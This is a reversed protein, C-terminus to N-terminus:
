RGHCFNIMCIKRASGSKSGCQSQICQANIANVRRKRMLGPESEEVSNADSDIQSESNKGEPLEPYCHLAMCDLFDAGRSSPCNSKGCLNLLSYYMLQLRNSSSSSTATATAPLLGSMSDSQSIDDEDRSMMVDCKASRCLGEQLDSTIAECKLAACVKILDEVTPVQDESFPYQGEAEDLERPVTVLGAPCFRQVCKMYMIRDYQYKLCYKVICPELEDNWYRRKM